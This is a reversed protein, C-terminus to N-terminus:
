IRNFIPVTVGGALTIAMDTMVWFPSSPAILGVHDGKRVGLDKLGLALDGTKKAFEETSINIWSDDKRYNLLDPRVHTEKIFYFLEPLTNYTKSEMYGGAYM